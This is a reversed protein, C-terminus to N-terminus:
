KLATRYEMPVYKIGEDEQIEGTVVFGFKKYVDVAYLSSHVTIVPSTNEALVTNWLRRGIGQGHHNGDVFFLAIHTGANRTAIIGVLEKNEYAGYATLMDLYQESHIADRFAKKGKEPYDVAEYKSFVEWVLPLATEMNKRSIPKIKVNEMAKKDDKDQLAKIIDNIKYKRGFDVRISIRM